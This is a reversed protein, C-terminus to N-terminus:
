MRLQFRKDLSDCLPRGRYHRKFVATARKGQCQFDHGRNALMAVPHIQSPDCRALNETEQTMRSRNEHTCIKWTEENCINVCM